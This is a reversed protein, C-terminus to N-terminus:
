VVWVLNVVIVMGWMLKGGYFDGCEGVDVVVEGCEVCYEVVDVVVVGVYDDIEVVDYGVCEMWGFCGVM